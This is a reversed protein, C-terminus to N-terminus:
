VVTSTPCQFFPSFSSLWRWMISIFITAFLTLIQLLLWDIQRPGFYLKHNNTLLFVYCHSTFPQHTLFFLTKLTYPLLVLLSLYSNLYIFLLIDNSTCHTKTLVPWSPLIWCNLYLISQLIGSHKTKEREVIDFTEWVMGSTMKSRQAPLLKLYGEFMANM